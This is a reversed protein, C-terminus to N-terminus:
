GFVHSFGDSQVARFAESEADHYLFLACFSFYWCLDYAILSVYLIPVLLGQYRRHFSIRDGGERRKRSVKRERGFRMGVEDWERYTVLTEEWKVSFGLLGWLLAKVAQQRGSGAGGHLSQGTEM